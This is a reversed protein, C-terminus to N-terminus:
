KRGETTQTEDGYQVFPREDDTLITVKRPDGDTHLTQDSITFHRLVGGFALELNKRTFTTETPGYDLVTGKVLVTRDCFEPVSGLNHTSVLMVRGEDRLEKLLVIIQEETKVDVGTFPEDLLIVQGDQALARALFVRKRQGGSLEGIQRKRFEQMNVRGLAREVAEHDTKKPRRLFGMHGYRGMMVVDEVLVPFSWDVEESQPVYAVLNKRLAEGVPLGLIRISGQAAPVFGMIAKFLTSKGAGNVGVLAAVTGRPIEFSAKWLATHGNRYTVTVNEASIGGGAAQATADM